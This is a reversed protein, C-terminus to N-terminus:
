ANRSEIHVICAPPSSEAAPQMDDAIAAGDDGPAGRPRREKRRKLLGLQKDMIKQQRCDILVGLVFVAAIAVLVVLALGVVAATTLASEGEAAAGTTGAGPENTAPWVDGADWDTNKGGLVMDM